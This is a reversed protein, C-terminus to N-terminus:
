NSPLGKVVYTQEGPHALGIRRAQPEISAKSALWNRQSELAKNQRELSLVQASDAKADRWTHFVSVGASLYLYLLVVLVGLM